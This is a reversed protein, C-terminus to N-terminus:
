SQCARVCCYAHDQFPANYIPSESNSTTEPQPDFAKEKGKRSVEPPSKSSPGAQTDQSQADSAVVKRWSSRDMLNPLRTVPKPVVM